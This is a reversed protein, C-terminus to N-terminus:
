NLLIGNREKSEVNLYNAPGSYKIIQNNMQQTPLQNEIKTNPYENKNNKFGRPIVFM